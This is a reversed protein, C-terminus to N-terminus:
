RELRWGLHANREDASRERAVVGLETHGVGEAHAAAAVVVGGVVVGGQLQGVIEVPDAARVLNADADIVVMLDLVDVVRLIRVAREGEVARHRPKREGVQDGAADTGKRLAGFHVQVLAFFEECGVHLVGPADVRLGGDVGPQAPLRVKRQGVVVLM